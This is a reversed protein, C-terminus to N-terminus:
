TRTCRSSGPTHKLDVCSRFELAEPRRFKADVIKKLVREIRHRPMRRRRVLNLCPELFSKDVKAAQTFLVPRGCYFIGPDCEPIALLFEKQFFFFRFESTNGACQSQLLLPVLIMQVWRASVTFFGM